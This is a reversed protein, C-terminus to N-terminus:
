SIHVTLLRMGFKTVKKTTVLVANDVIEQIEEASLEGFRSEENKKKDILSPNGSFIKHQAVNGANM